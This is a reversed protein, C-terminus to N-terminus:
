NGDFNLETLCPLAGYRGDLYGRQLAENSRPQFDTLPYLQTAQERDKQVFWIQDRRMLTSDLISSDHTTFVIQANGKNLTTNHFLEVLFRVMMPHFSNDFEDIILIRGKVLMDMLPGLLAFLKRTGESEDDPAFPIKDDTNNLHHWFQIIKYIEPKIDSPMTKPLQKHTMIEVKIDIINIDAAQLFKIIKQKHIPEECQKITLHDVLPQGSDFVILSQTIWDFVSTLKDSHEKSNLMKATSLFLSKSKTFAKWQERWDMGSILKESVSWNEKLTQPDYFRELWQEGNGNPYAFLWEQMVREPTVAFGYQYRVGKQIFFLEFESPAHRSNEHLLFPKVDIKEDEDSNKASNKVFDQMFAFARILNSKGAANPGYIVSSTVLRPLDSFNLSFTNSDVLETESDAILTLTQTNYISRFNTVNFEILM